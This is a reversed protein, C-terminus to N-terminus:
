CYPVTVYTVRADVGAGTVFDFPPMGTLSGAGAGAPAGSNIYQKNRLEHNDYATYNDQGAFFAQLCNQGGVNVPFFQERYKRSFDNFLQSDTASPVTVTPDAAVGLFSVSADASTVQTILAAFFALAATRFSVFNKM